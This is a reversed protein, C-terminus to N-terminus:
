KKNFILEIPEYLDCIVHDFEIGSDEVTIDWAGPCLNLLDNSAQELFHAKCTACSKNILRLNFENMKNKRRGDIV